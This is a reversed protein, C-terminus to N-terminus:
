VTVVDCTLAQSLYDYTKGWEILVFRYLHNVYHIPNGSNLKEKSTWVTAFIFFNPMTSIKLLIKKKNFSVSFSDTFFFM